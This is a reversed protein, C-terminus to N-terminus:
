RILNGAQGHLIPGFAGMLLNSDRTFKNKYSKFWLRLERSLNSRNPNVFQWFVRVEKLMAPLRLLAFTKQFHSWILHFKWIVSVSWFCKHCRVQSCSSPFVESCYQLMVCEISPSLMVISGFVLIGSYLANLASCSHFYSPGLCLSPFRDPVIIM